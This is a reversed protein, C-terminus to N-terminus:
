QGGEEKYLFYLRLVRRVYEQTEAISPIGGARQVAQPGANYAAVMRVMDGEFMNALIRLYRVGGHINQRPDFPDEVLMRSATEPMLQMLGKAGKSSIAAPDFASEAAMVARVLAIPIRYLSCAESVYANYEPAQARPRVSPPATLEILDGKKKARLGKRRAGPPINSIVTVGNEDTYRHLQEASATTGAGLACASLVSLITRRRTLNSRM